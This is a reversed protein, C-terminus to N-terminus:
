SPQQPAELSADIEDAIQIYKDLQQEIAKIMSTKTAMSTYGRIREVEHRIENTIGHYVVGAERIRQVKARVIDVTGNIDDQVKGWQAPLWGAYWTFRDADPLSDGVRRAVTTMMNNFFEPNKILQQNLMMAIQQVAKKQTSYIDYWDPNWFVNYAAQYFETPGQKSAALAKGVSPNSKGDRPAEPNDYTAVLKMDRPNAVFGQTRESPHIIGYGPDVVANYGLDRLLKNWAISRKGGAYGVMRYMVYWLHGPLSNENALDPAEKVLQDMKGEPLGLRDALPRLREILANFVDQHVDGLNLVNGSFTFVQIYPAENQFPLKRGDSKHNLYYRAPYFYVGLPTDYGSQPNIGLKPLNTMSIGTHQLQEPSLSKLYALAEEIGHRRPNQAPNRRLETLLDLIKM